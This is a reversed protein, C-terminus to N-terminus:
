GSGWVTEAEETVSTGSTLGRIMRLPVELNGRACSFAGNHQSILHAATLDSFMFLFGYYLRLQKENRNLASTQAVGDTLHVAVDVYAQHRKEYPFSAWAVDADVTQMFQGCPEGGQKTNLFVSSAAFHLWSQVNPLSYKEFHASSLARSLSSCLLTKPTLHMERRECRILFSSHLNHVSFVVGPKQLEPVWSGQSFPSANYKSIIIYM